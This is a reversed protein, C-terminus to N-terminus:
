GGCSAPRESRDGTGSGLEVVRVDNWQGFPPCRLLWELLVFASQWVVFGVNELHELDAENNDLQGAGAGM